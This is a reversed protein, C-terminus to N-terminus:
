TARRGAAELVARRAGPHRCSETALAASRALADLRSLGSTYRHYLYAGHLVDGAGLTDVPEVREVAVEALGGDSAVLISEQGRTTACLEPRWREYIAAVAEEPEADALEPPRFTACTIIDTALPLLDAYVPRWRGCDLVIPIGAAHARNAVALALDAYNGDLLVATTGAPLLSASFPGLRASQNNAAL